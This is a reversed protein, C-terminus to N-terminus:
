RIAEERGGAHTSSLDRGLYLSQVAARTKLEVASRSSAVRGNKVVYGYNVFELALVANQQALLFSVGESRNLAHITVFIEEVVQPALSM